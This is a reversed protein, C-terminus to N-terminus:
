IVDYLKLMYTFLTLHTMDINDSLDDLMNLFITCDANLYMALMKRATSLTVRFFGQRIVDKQQIKHDSFLRVNSQIYVTFWRINGHSVNQILTM